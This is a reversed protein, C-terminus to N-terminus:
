SNIIVKMLGFTEDMTKKNIAYEETENRLYYKQVIGKDCLVDMYKEKLTSPSIGVFSVIELLTAKEHRALFALISLINEDSIIKLNEALIKFESM